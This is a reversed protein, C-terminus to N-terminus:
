SSEKPQCDPGGEERDRSRHLGYFLSHNSQLAQRLLPIKRKIRAFALSREEQHIGVLSVELGVEEQVVRVETEIESWRKKLDSKVASKKLCTDESLALSKERRLAKRQLKAGGHPGVSSDEREETYLKEEERKCTHKM